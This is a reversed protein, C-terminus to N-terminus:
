KNSLRNVLILPEHFYIKAKNSTLCFVNTENSKAEFSDLFVIFFNKSLNVYLWFLIAIVVSKFSSYLIDITYNPNLCWNQLNWM